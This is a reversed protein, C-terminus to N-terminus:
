DRERRFTVDALRCIERDHRRIDRALDDLKDNVGGFKADLDDRLNTAHGNVTQQKAHNAWYAALIAGVAAVLAAIGSLDQWWDRAAAADLLTM